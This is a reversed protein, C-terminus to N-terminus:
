PIVNKELYKSCTIFDSLTASTPAAVSAANKPAKTPERNIFFTVIFATFLSTPTISIMSAIPKPVPNIQFDISYACAIHERSQKQM